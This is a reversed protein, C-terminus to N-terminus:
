EDGGFFNRLRQYTSPRSEYRRSGHRPTPQDQRESRAALDRQRQAERRAMEDSAHRSVVPQPPRQRERQYYIPEREVTIGRTGFDVGHELGLHIPQSFRSQIAMPEAYDQWSWGSDMSGFRVGRQPNKDVTRTNFNLSFHDGYMGKDVSHIQSVNIEKDEFEVTLNFFKM